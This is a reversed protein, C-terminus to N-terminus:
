SRGGGRGNAATARGRRYAAELQARGRDGLAVQRRAMAREAVTLFKDLAYAGYPAGDGWAFPEVYKPPMASGYVNAGAGVVSGTTLRVGIGTKAHDGLLSGLFQMGTDRVGTPTWLAVTGYTNKLNSTTTGAGLNVWRGLYSHGVFGDHGKNAHGLMVTASIEGRVRCVDGISCGSVRDGLVSSGRGVYCPGILRTFAQVSAGAALHIPGATADLVVLPEVVAGPELTVAHAGMVHAGPPLPAAALGDALAPLDEALQAGLAAVFEWVEEVWRGRVQAERANPTVLSELPVTGDAFAEADVDGALRVAAVRGDCRWVGAGADVGALTVACRSNAVVTGAPLRGDRVPAPAGPESFDVLHPAVLSGRAPLAFAREWRERILLAGARLESVPRTLAFPEFLRGREDDYLVLPTV